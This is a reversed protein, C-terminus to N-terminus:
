MNGILFLYIANLKIVHVVLGVCIVFYVYTDMTSIYSIHVYEKKGQPLKSSCYLKSFSPIRGDTGKTSSHLMTCCIKM